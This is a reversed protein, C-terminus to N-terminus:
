YKNTSMLLYRGDLLNSLLAAGETRHRVIASGVGFM